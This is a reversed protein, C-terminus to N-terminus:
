AAPTPAPASPGAPASGDPTLENLVALIAASAARLESSSDAQGWQTALARFDRLKAYLPEVTRHKDSRMFHARISVTILQARTAELATALDRHLSDTCVFKDRARAILDSADPLEDAPVAVPPWDLLDALLDERGSSRIVETLEAITHDTFAIHRSNNM